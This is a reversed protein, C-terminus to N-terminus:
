GRRKQIHLGTEGRLKIGFEDIISKLRRKVRNKAKRMFFKGPVHGVVKGNKVIAHGKELSWAYPADSYVIYGTGYRMKSMKISRRMEGTRDTFYTNKTTLEAHIQRAIEHLVGREAAAAIDQRIGEVDLVVTVSTRM